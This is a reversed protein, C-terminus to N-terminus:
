FTTTLNKIKSLDDQIKRLFEINNLEGFIGYFQHGLGSFKESIEPSFNTSIKLLKDKFFEWSIRLFKKFSHRDCFNQKLCFSHSKYTFFFCIKKKGRWQLQERQNTLGTRYDQSVLKVVIILEMPVMIIIKRKDVTLIIKWM